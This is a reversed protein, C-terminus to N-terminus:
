LSWRPRQTPTSWTKTPALLPTDQSLSAAGEPLPVPLNGRRFRERLMDVSTCVGARLMTRGRAEPYSM